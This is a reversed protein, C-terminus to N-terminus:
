GALWDDILRRAISSGPPLDFGGAPPDRLESRSFWRADLLEQPDIIIEASLAEVEFGLMLNSPFPWPQSSHYRPWGVRVGTEEMVERAVAEELSEGPEVFGALASYMRRTPFRANHGLLAQDGRTVLMIVTPDTRPFCPTACDSCVVVHGAQEPTGPAGCLGCFRARRRWELLASAYALLAAHDMPLSPAATRLSVLNGLAAPLIREPAEAASVDVAFVPAAAAETLGLLAWPPDVGIPDARLAAMFGVAPLVAGSGDPAVLCHGRWLPVVGADCRRWARDIGDVDRRLTAARDLTGGAYTHPNM